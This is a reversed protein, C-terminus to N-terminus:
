RKTEKKLEVTDGYFKAINEYFMIKEDMPLRRFLALMRQEIINIADNEDCSQSQNANYIIEIDPFLRILTGITLKAFDYEGNAYASIRSQHINTKASLKQQSGAEAISKKIANVFSLSLKETQLKIKEETM